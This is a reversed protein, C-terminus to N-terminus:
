GIPFRCYADGYKLNKSNNPKCVRCCHIESSSQDVFSTGEYEQNRKRNGKDISRRQYTFEPAPMPKAHLKFVIRCRSPYSTPYYNHEQVNSRDNAGAM